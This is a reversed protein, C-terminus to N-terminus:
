PTEGLRHARIAAELASLLSREDAAGEHLRGNIFFTPTSNVGHELGSALDEEVRAALAQTHLDHEWQTLDLSLRQAHRRLDPEAQARHNEFLADHMEWFKGQLAAAEAARAASEARPHLERLPSNRFVFRLAAGLHRQVAQVVAHARACYVCAYDGYELLTVLADSRGQVHDRGSVALSLRESM